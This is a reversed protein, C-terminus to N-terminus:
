TVKGILYSNMYSLWIMISFDFSMVSFLLSNKVYQCAICVHVHKRNQRTPFGGFLKNLSLGWAGLIMGKPSPQADQPRQFNKWLCFFFEIYITLGNVYLKRIERESPM